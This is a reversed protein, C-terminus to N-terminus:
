PTKATPEPSEEEASQKKESVSATEPTTKPEDSSDQNAQELEAKDNDDSFVTPSATSPVLAKADTVTPMEAEAPLKGMQATELGCLASCRPVRPTQASQQLCLSSTGVPLNDMAFVHTQKRVEKDARHNLKM